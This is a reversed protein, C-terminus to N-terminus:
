LAARETLKQTLKCIRLLLREFTGWVGRRRVVDELRLLPLQWKMRFPHAIRYMNVNNLVPMRYDSLLMRLPKRLEIRGGKQIATCYVGALRSASFFEAEKAGKCKFYAIQERLAEIFNFEAVTWGSGTISGKRRFYYHYLQASVYAVAPVAFIALYTTFEDEHIKGVPFRINKYFDREFLKGWTTTSCKGLHVWYEEPSAKRFSLHQEEDNDVEIGDSIINMEVCVIRYGCRVGQMMVDLCKESIWDDSDIFTVYSSSSNAFMWDLAANRAASLGQNMQHIVHVRSDAFAYEDCIEGCSDPSGDDVLILEFDRFTQALISDVCKRLYPEVKYVPVIVSVQPM